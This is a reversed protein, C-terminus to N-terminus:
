RRGRDFDPARKNVFADVGEAFDDLASLRGFSRAEADLQTALSNGPSERLLRRTARIADRPGARLTGVVSAVEADLRAAPVVRNVLGIDLARAADFREGLLLIEAARRPGVVRPLSWTGGGDPSLGINRYGAAFYADEAAIALDCAALLSLGFGACAGQVRAVVPHPMRALSEIAAHVRGVIRTFVAAREDPPRALEAAFTRIDGGAMFHRGEGRLVVVRITDDGALTATADVLADMMAYDLANLADPRSLSLTAVGDARSLTVASAERM